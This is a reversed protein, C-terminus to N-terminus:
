GAGVEVGEVLVGVPAKGAVPAPGLSELRLLASDDAPVAVTFRMTVTGKVPVEREATVGAGRVRLRGPREAGAVAALTLTVTRRQGLGYVYLRAATGAGLLGTDDTSDLRWTVFPPDPIRVIQIGGRESVVRLGVFGLRRDLVSRILWTSAIGPGGNLHNDEDGVVHGDHAVAILEPYPQEFNSSNPLQLIRSVRKNWFAADWWAAAATAPSGFSSILMPAEVGPPLASDIWSRGDVFDASVGRQTDAIKKLCYATEVACWLGVTAVTVAAVAGARGRARAVAFGIVALLTAAALVRAPPFDRLHCHRELQGIRGFLVDHFAADPSVLSATRLTLAADRVLWFMLIAGVVLAWPAPRRERLLAATGVFLLPALFFIYRSNIGGTFKVSFAGVALMTGVGILVLLWAFAHREPDEPRWLNLVAFALALALPLMGVGVTVYALAERGMAWSGPPLLSGQTASAYSGLVGQRSGVLGVLLGAGAVAAVPALVPHARLADRIRRRRGLADRRTPFRLEQAVAAILFAPALVGFQPRAFLALVIGALALVDARAGPRTVARQIALVAWLFAPYAAVETLVTAAMAMWPLAVSLLAVM